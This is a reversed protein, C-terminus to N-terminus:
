STILTPLSQFFVNSAQSYALELRFERTSGLTWQEIMVRESDTLQTLDRQNDIEMDRIYNFLHQTTDNPTRSVFLSARHFFNASKRPITEDKWFSESLLKSAFEAPILVKEILKGTAFDDHGPIHRGSSPGHSIPHDPWPWNM